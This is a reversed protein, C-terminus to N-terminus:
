IWNYIKIQIWYEISFYVLNSVLPHQHQTSKRQHQRIKFELFSDSSEVSEKPPPWRWKGIRVTKARGYPDLFPRSESPDVDEPAPPLPPPPPPAIGGQSQLITRVYQMILSKLNCKPDHKKKYAHKNIIIWIQLESIVDLFVNSKIKSTLNILYCNQTDCEFWIQVSIMM